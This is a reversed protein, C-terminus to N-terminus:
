EAAVGLSTSFKVPITKASSANVATIKFTLANNSRLTCSLRVPLTLASGDHLTHVQKTATDTAEVKIVQWPTPQTQALDLSLRVRPRKDDKAAPPQPPPRYNPPPTVGPPFPSAPQDSVAALEGLTISFPALNVTAGVKPTVPASEKANTDTTTIGTLELEGAIRTAKPSPARRTAVCIFLENGASTVSVPKIRDDNPAAGEPLKALDKGTDDTLSVLRSSQVKVSTPLRLLVATGTNWNRVSLDFPTAPEPLAGELAFGSFSSVPLRSVQLAVVEATAQAFALSAPFSLLSLIFLPRKM